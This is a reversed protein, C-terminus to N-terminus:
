VKDVCPFLDGPTGEPVGTKQAANARICQYTLDFRHQISHHLEPLGGTNPM